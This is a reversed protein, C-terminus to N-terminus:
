CYDFSRWKWSTWLCQKLQGLKKVSKYSINCFNIPVHGTCRGLNKGFFHYFRVSVSVPFETFSFFRHLSWIVERFVPFSLFLICSFWPVKKSLINFSRLSATFVLACFCRKDWFRIKSHDGRRWNWLWM